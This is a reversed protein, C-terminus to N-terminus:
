RSHAPGDMTGGAALPDVTTMLPLPGGGRLRAKPQAPHSEVFTDFEHIRKLKDFFREFM